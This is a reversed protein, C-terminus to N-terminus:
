ITFYRNRHITLDEGPPLLDLDGFGHVLQPERLTVWDAILSSPVIAGNRNKWTVLDLDGPLRWKHCPPHIVNVGLYRPAGNWQRRRPATVQHVTSEGVVGPLPFHPGRLQGGLQGGRPSLASDARRGPGVTGWTKRPALSRKQVKFLAQVRRPTRGMRDPFIRKDLGTVPAGSVTQDITDIHLGGGTFEAVFVTKGRHDATPRTRLVPIAEAFLVMSHLGTGLARHPGSGGTMTAPFLRSWFGGLAAGGPFGLVGGLSSAQLNHDTPSGTWPHGTPIRAQPGHTGIEQPLSGLIEKVSHFIGIPGPCWPM